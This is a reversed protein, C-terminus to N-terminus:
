QVLEVLQGGPLAGEYDRAVEGMTVGHARATITKRLGQFLSLGAFVEAVPPQTILQRRWSAEPRELTGTPDELPRVLSRILPHSFIISNANISRGEHIVLARTTAPKFFMAEQLKSSELMVAQWQKCTRQHVLLDRMPLELFIAEALEFIAFTRTPAANSM